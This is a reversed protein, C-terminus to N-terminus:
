PRPGTRGGDDEAARVITDGARSAVGGEAAWAGRPRHAGREAVQQASLQPGGSRPRPAGRHRRRRRRSDHRPHDRCACRAGRRRPGRLPRRVVPVPRRVHVGLLQVVDVQRLRTGPELSSRRDTTWVGETILRSVRYLPRTRGAPQMTDPLRDEHGEEEVRVEVCEGCLGGNLIQLVHDGRALSGFGWIAYLSGVWLLLTGAALAVEGGDDARAHDILLAPTSASVERVRPPDGVLHRYDAGDSWGPHRRACPEPLRPLDLPEFSGDISGSGM